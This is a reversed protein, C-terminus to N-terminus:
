AVFLWKDKVYEKKEEINLTEIYETEYQSNKKLKRTSKRRLDYLSVNKKSSKKLVRKLEKEYKKEDIRSTM